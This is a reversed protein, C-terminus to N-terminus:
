KRYTKYWEYYKRLGEELTTKVYDVKSNAPITLGWNSNDFARMKEVKNIHASKGTIKEIIDVVKRNTTKKGSAVSILSTGLNDGYLAVTVMSKVFDDVYVWDHTADPDLQMTTGMLCSDFVTPIFRFDAEEEGYLSYPRMTIIPKKYQTQFAKCIREGAAKTASYLTEVDLTVSSTSVNIFAKHPTALSSVLINFLAIVNADMIEFLNTQHAMNGSAALHFIYDPKEESFFDVLATTSYLMPRPILVFPMEISKLYAQVHKGLFGRGGSLAVKNTM